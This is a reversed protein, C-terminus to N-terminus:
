TMVFEKVVTEQKEAQIALDRLRKVREELDSLKQKAAPHHADVLRKLEEVDKFFDNAKRINYKVFYRARKLINTLIGDMEKQSVNEDIKKKLDEFERVTSTAMFIVDQYM